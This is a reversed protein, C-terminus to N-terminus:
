LADNFNLELNPISWVFSESTYPDSGTARDGRPISVKIARLYDIRDGENFLEILREENIIEETMEGATLPVYATGAVVANWARARVVNLDTAAGAKDGARFKLLSRTLYIEALRILPVNTRVNKSGRYYKNAFLTTFDKISVRDDYAQDSRHNNLPYRVTILQTFRKDRKASNNITTDSQPNAMWGLRKVTSFSMYTEVWPTPSNNWTQNIASLHNPAPLNDDFFPAYFIVEKGRAISSKNFAEIPDENLNYEGGNQDIIFNCEQLASDYSGKQLYARVLMGSAAYRNARVEYSPHHKSADFKDPLLAKAKRLDSVILDYVQQTTGVQPNRAEQASKAYFTPMPIDITSNAGGKVYAHGFTTQLVYYAYARVFYLEGIIRDLNNTIEQQSSNPYPNGQKENVFELANNVTAIVRYLQVFNKETYANFEKTARTYGFSPDTVFGVDDGMSSKVIRENVWAMNWEHGSFLGAYAGIPAREFEELTAWPVQPPRDIDFYDSCSSCILLTIVILIYRPSKMTLTSM